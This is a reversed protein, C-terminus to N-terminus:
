RYTGLNVVQIRVYQQNMGCEPLVRNLPGIQEVEQALDRGVNRIRRGATACPALVALSALLFPCRSGFSLLDLWFLVFVHMAVVFLVRDHEAKGRATSSPVIIEITHALRHQEAREVSSESWDLTTLNHGTGKFLVSTAKCGVGGVSM